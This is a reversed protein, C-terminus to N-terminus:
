TAASGEGAGPSLSLDLYTIGGLTCAYRVVLSDCNAPGVESELTMHM